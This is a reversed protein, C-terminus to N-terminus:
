ERYADRVLKDFQEWTFHREKEGGKPYWGVGGRSVTLRGFMEENAQVAIVLDKNVIEFEPSEKVYVSHEAM